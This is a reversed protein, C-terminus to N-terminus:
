SIQIRPLSRLSTRLADGASSELFDLAGSQGAAMLRPPVEPNEDSNDFVWFASAHAAFWALNAFSRRWRAIIKAAPVDHGGAQVRRGVRACALEPSALAVYILGVYGGRGRVLDVLPQYKGSSLVTEVGVAEGRRLATQLEGEVANAADLFAQQLIPAPADAFGRHGRQVLLARAHDDPNLFRVHPLLDRIPQTQVLTTKGAGNPGAVIWFEFRAM